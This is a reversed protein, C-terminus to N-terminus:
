RLSFMIPLTFRSRVNKWGQIAPVWKPMLKVVREAEKTLLPDPSRLTKVDVISGDKNVVFSVLVRGQIGMEQCKAPYKIQSALFKYCEKDGGPFQANTEVIDYVKDSESDGMEDAHKAYLEKMLKPAETSDGASIAVYLYNRAKIDDQETGIGELYMVAMRLPVGLIGQAKEYWKLAKAQDQPIGRGEDYMKALQYAAQDNEMNAARTFCAFAKMYDPTDDSLFKQGADFYKAATEAMKKTYDGVSIVTSTKPELIIVEQNLYEKRFGGEVRIHKETLQTVPKKQMREVLQGNEKTVIKKITAYPKDNVRRSFKTMGEKSIVVSDGNAPLTLSFLGDYGTTASLNTQIAKVVADKIPIGSENVVRGEYIVHTEVINNDQASVSLAAALLAMFLLNLNKM